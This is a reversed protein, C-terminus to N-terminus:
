KKVKELKVILENNENMYITAMIDGSTDGIISEIIDNPINMYMSANIKRLRRTAVKIMKM